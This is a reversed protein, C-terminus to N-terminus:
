RAFGPPTRCATGARHLTISTDTLMPTARTDSGAGAGLSEETFGIGRHVEGLGVASRALHLDEVVVHATGSAVAHAHLVFEGLCEAVLEDEVVLGDDVDRGAARDPDLGEDAPVM